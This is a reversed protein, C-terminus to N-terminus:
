LSPIYLSILLHLFAALIKFFTAIQLKPLKGWYFSLAKDFYKVGEVYQGRNYLALAINKELMAIKAPDADKGTNKLYLNLAEQYYHLAENSASSRLAEEGAKILYEETMELNEGRSYHYALMGYFDHIRESFVKEISQAVKLHLKKRKLPLISGYAAEQVLAHKFIYETEGIRERERLLQIEKLYSLQGDLNEITGAVGALIRYFFTRGIVSAIRVLNRTEEDLRDIRAMLVDNITNPIAITGIKETVQFAGNKLVVAQEDILSRAVEEIFFPNGGARQVIQRIIDHRLVNINLVNTILTESMKKNLPELVIEVSN